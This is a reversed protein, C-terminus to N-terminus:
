FGLAISLVVGLRLIPPITELEIYDLVICLM